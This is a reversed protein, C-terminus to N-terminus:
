FRLKNLVAMMVKHVNGLIFVYTPQFLKLVDVLFLKSGEYSKCVIKLHPTTEHVAVETRKV